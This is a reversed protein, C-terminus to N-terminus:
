RSLTLLAATWSRAFRAHDVAVDALSVAVGVAPGVLPILALSNTALQRAVEDSVRPRFASITALYARNLEQGVRLIYSAADEPGERLAIREFERLRARAEDAGAHERFEMIQEWPVGDLDPVAFRLATLGTGSAPMLGRRTAMPEFLPTVSLAAGFEGAVLVDRNFGKRVYDREFQPLERLLDTARLDEFNLRDQRKGLEDPLSGRGTAVIHLWDPRLATLADLVNTHFEATHRQAIPGEVAFDFRESPVGVEDEAAFAITLREGPAAPRRLEARKRPTLDDPPHWSTRSFTDSIAVQLMGAEIVVEDYLVAAHKVRGAPALARRDHFLEVSTHLPFIIRSAPPFDAPM